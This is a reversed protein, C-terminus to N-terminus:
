RLPCSVHWKVRFFSFFLVSQIYGQQKVASASLLLVLTDLGRDATQRPIRGEAGVVSVSKNDAGGPIAADEVPTEVGIHLSGM